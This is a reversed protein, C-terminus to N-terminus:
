LPRVRLTSYGGSIGVLGVVWEGHGLMWPLIRVTTETEKGLDDRVIVRQGIERFQMAAEASKSIRMEPSLANDPNVSNWYREQQRKWRRETLQKM